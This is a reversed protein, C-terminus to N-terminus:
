VRFAFVLNGTFDPISVILLFSTVVLERSIKIREQLIAKAYGEVGKGL